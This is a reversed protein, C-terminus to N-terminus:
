ATGWIAKLLAYRADQAAATDAVARDIIEQFWMAGFNLGAGDAGITIGGPNGAGANGTTAVGGDVRISSSAGNLIIQVVHKARLAAGANEAAASGANISLRPTSTTKALGLTNATTGDAVYKGITWMPPMLVFDLSRPQVGAYAAQMFHAVGNTIIFPSSIIAAPTAIATNTLTYTEGTGSSVFTAGNTFTEASDNANFDSVLTGGIGDYLLTRITKGSACLNGSTSVGDISIAATGATIVGATSSVEAGIPTWSTPITDQDPAFSFNVKGTTTNHTVLLWYLTGAQLGAAALTVTTPATRLAGTFHQYILLGSSGTDQFWGFGTTAAANFKNFIARFAAPALSDFSRRTIIQRSGTFQTAAISPTTAFNGDVGFNALYKKGSYGAYIPQNAGSAQLLPGAAGIQNAISSANLAGTVGLDARWDAATNGDSLFQTLLNRGGASMPWTLLM